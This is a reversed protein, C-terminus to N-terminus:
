PGPSGGRRSPSSSTTPLRDRWSPSPSSNRSATSPGTGRDPSPRPTASATPRTPTTWASPVWASIAPPTWSATPATGSSSGTRRPAPRGEAPGGRYIAPDPKTAGVEYSFVLRGAHKEPRLPGIAFATTATANSILGLSFGAGPPDEMAEEAGEYYYVCAQITEVDLRAVEAVARRDRVGSRRAPGQEARAFPTKLKGVSAEQSTDSWAALFAGYDLGAAEAAARKGRLLRGRGGHLPHRLPRLVGLPLPGDIGDASSTSPSSQLLDRRIRDQSVARPRGQAALAYHAAMDEAAALMGSETVRDADGRQAHGPRVAQAAIVAEIFARDEATGRELLLLLPLTIKGEKLDNGAPKGLTAEDSVFDLCDDVVQFAIGLNVGFAELAELHQPRDWSTRPPSPARRSSSPRRTRSSKSTTREGLTLDWKRHSQILEGEILKLTTRSILPLIPSWGEQVAMNMAMIFVRDGMLVALEPGWRSSLSARGRRLLAQDVIDDHILTATHIFEFIAAYRVDQEGEYGLM